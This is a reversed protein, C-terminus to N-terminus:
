ALKEEMTLCGHPCFKVCIGCHKCVIIKNNDPNFWITKVPCADICLRCGTCKDEKFIVGGGKRPILANVPCAAACDPKLCGRCIDAVMTSGYGGRTRIQIASRLPSFSDYVHRACALMCAYCGICKNMGPANLVKPM